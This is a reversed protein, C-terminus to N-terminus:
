REHREDAAISKGSIVRMLRRWVPGALKSYLFLTPMPDRWDWTVHVDARAFAKAMRWLWRMGASFDIERNKIGEALGNIDGLLWQVRKGVPYNWDDAVSLCEEEKGTAYQVAALPFDCGLRYPFACTAPMRPNLELFYPVQSKEDLIFQICGVGTFNLEKLLRACYDEIEQIPRITIGEVAIGTDDIRDTWSIMWQFHARPRGNLSTFHYNIRPGQIYKQVILFENGEPWSEFSNRLDDSTRCIVAKKDYFQSLSGNPKVVCPYGIQEAISSLQSLGYAPLYGPIPIGLGSVIRNFNSKDLCILAVSHDTMILKTRFPIEDIHNVLCVLQAEAVPYVWQIDPRGSVFANLSKIFLEPSSKIPPHRWIDSVYRSYQGPVKDDNTENGLVINFGARSLSRVVTLTQRYNGLILM